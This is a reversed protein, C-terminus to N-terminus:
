RMFANKENLKYQVFLIDSVDYKNSNRPIKLQNM